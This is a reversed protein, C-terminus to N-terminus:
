CPTSIISMPASDDLGPDFLIDVSSSILLSRGTTDFILSDYLMGKDISEVLDSTMLLNISYSICIIFSIEAIESKLRNFM